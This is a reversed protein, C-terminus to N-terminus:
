DMSVDEAGEEHEESIIVDGSGDQNILEEPVGGTEIVEGTNEKHEEAIRQQGNSSILSQWSTPNTSVMGPKAGTATKERTLGGLVSLTIQLVQFLIYFFTRPEKKIRDKEEKKAEAKEDIKKYEKEAKLISEYILSQASTKLIKSYVLLRSKGIRSNKPDPDDYDIVLQQEKLDINKMFRGLNDVLWGHLVEDVRTKLITRDYLIQHMTTIMLDLNGRADILSNKAKEINSYSIRVSANSDFERAYSVLREIDIPCNERLDVWSMSIM